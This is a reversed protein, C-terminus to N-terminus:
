KRKKKWKGKGGEMGKRRKKKRGLENEENEERRDIGGGNRTDEKERWGKIEEIEVWMNKGKEKREELALLDCMIM